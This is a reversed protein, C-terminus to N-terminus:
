PFASNEQNYEGQCGCAAKRGMMTPTLKAEEMAAEPNTPLARPWLRM